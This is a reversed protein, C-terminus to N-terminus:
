PAAAEQKSSGVPCHFLITYPLISKPNYNLLGFQWADSSVNVVGLQVGHGGQNYIGVLCGYGGKERWAYNVAGLMLGAIEDDCLNFTSVAVGDNDSFINVFPSSTIGIAQRTGTAMMGLNLGIVQEQLGTVYSLSLGYVPVKSHFLSIDPAFSLQVPTWSTQLWGSCEGYPIGGANGMIAAILITLILIKKM